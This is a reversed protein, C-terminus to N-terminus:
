LTFHCLGQKMISQVLQDYCNKKSYFRDLMHLVWMYKILTHTEKCTSLSLAHMCAYVYKIASLFHFRLNFSMLLSLFYCFRIEITQPLFGIKLHYNCYNFIGKDVSVFISCTPLCLRHVLCACVGRHQFWKWFNLCARSCNWNQQAKEEQPLILSEGHM